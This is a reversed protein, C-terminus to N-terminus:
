EVVDGVDQALHPGPGPDDLPCRTDEVEMPPGEEVEM